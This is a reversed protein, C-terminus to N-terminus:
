KVHEPPTLSFNQFGGNGKPFYLSGRIGELPGYIACISDDDWFYGVKGIREDVIFQQYYEPIEDAHFLTPAVADKRSRGENTFCEVSKNNFEVRIPYFLHGHKDAEVEGFGNLPSWVKDGKKFEKM